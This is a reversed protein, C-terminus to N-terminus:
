KLEVRRINDEIDECVSCISYCYGNESEYEKVYLDRDSDGIRVMSMRNGDEDVLSFDDLPHRIGEGCCKVVSEKLTWLRTFELDREAGEPLEMIARYEDDTFFRKAVGIRDGRVSEVDCGVDRHSLAVAVRDKAHSINFCVAHDTLYPKGDSSESIGPTDETNRIVGLDNLACALLAYACICRTRDPANKFRNCRERRSAPMLAYWRDLFAPDDNVKAVYLRVGFAHNEGSQIEFM